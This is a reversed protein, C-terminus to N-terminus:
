EASSNITGSVIEIFTKLAVAGVGPVIQKRFPGDLTQSSIRAHCAKGFRTEPPQFVVVALRLHLNIPIRNRHLEMSDWMEEEVPM